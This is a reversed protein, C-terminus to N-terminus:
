VKGTVPRSMGEAARRIVDDTSPGFGTELQRVEGGHKEVIERGVVEEANAGKVLIDPRLRELLAHPTDEEFVTVYDVYPLSGILEARESVTLVPRPEGKLRRVSADSNLAVVLVDGLARAESLLRIHHVNLIDFCGNTLVVRRGSRALSRRIAQLEDIGVWKRVGESGEVERRIEDISVAAVGSRGVVIGAALNGLEAAQAFSAGAFRALAVVAIFTDGAGTVDYVERARASIHSPAGRRPHIAVGGSGMTVCVAKGGVQKQITRAAAVRSEEGTIEIGSAEQAEKRNPTILDAGRYRRYDTGKPDVVVEVSHEHALRIIEALLSPTLLGKAYDSVVVGDVNPMIKRLRALLRKEVAPSPPASKERDVRLVQQGQAVFRTKLPTLRGPEREMELRIRSEARVIEILHHGPEDEGCLSVFITEASQFALNRAVNAAGGALWEEREANLVPV